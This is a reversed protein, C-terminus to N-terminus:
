YKSGYYDAGIAEASRNLIVGALPYDSLVAAAKELQDRRTIGESTVLVLADVRPAVVLADDTSIVPPLDILILPSKSLEQIERIMDEFRGNALLESATDTGRVGAAVALREIGIGFLMDTVNASGQFYERVEMAPQVGLYYCISPNRMDCDLLFVDQNGERALSIALNLTTVSKGDGPAASTVGLISWASTRCRQLIRTRLLRYSPAAGKLLRSDGDPVLVRNARCVAVDYPLLPLELPKGPKAVPAADRSRPVPAAVGGGAQPARARPAQAVPRPSAAEVSAREERLKKAKELADVISM